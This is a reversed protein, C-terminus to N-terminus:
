SSRITHPESLSPLDAQTHQRGVLARHVDVFSTRKDNLRFLRMFERQSFGQHFLLAADNLVTRRLQLSRSEHLIPVAHIM